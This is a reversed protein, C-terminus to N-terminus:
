METAAVYAEDNGVADAAAGSISTYSAPGGKILLVAGEFEYFVAALFTPFGYRAARFVKRHGFWVVLATLGMFLRHLGVAALRLGRPRGARLRHLMETQFRVHQYEDRLIQDCIAQLLPSATAARLARYYVKAIIEATVLIAICLELGAAQRLRRFVRDTWHASARPLGARDMFRGLDRAHRQEEEIFLRNAEIYDADGTARAYRRALDKFHRGDSSEGLQFVRISDAIARIEPEALHYRDEWPLPRLHERNFQFYFVWRTSSAAQQNMANEKQKAKIQGRRGSVKCQLTYVPPKAQREHFGPDQARGSREFPRPFSQLKAAFAGLGRSV